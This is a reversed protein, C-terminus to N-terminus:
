FRVAMAFIVFLGWPDVWNIPDDGCYAYWNRGSKSPDEGTFRRTEADYFRLQAFHLGLV